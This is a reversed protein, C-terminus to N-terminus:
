LESLWLILKKRKYGPSIIKESQIEKMKAEFTDKLSKEEEM